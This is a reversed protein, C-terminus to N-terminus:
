PGRGRQEIPRKKPVALACRMEMERIEQEPPPRKSQFTVAVVPVSSPDKVPGTPLIVQYRDIPKEVVHFHLSTFDKGCDCPGDWAFLLPTSGLTLFEVDGLRKIVYKEGTIDRLRYGLELVADLAILPGFQNGSDLLGSVRLVSRGATPLLPRPAIQPLVAPLDRERTSSPSALDRPSVCPPSLPYPDGLVLSEAPLDADPSITSDNFCICTPSCRQDQQTLLQDIEPPQRLLEESYSLQGFPDFESPSTQDVAGENLVDLTDFRVPLHLDLNTRLNIDPTYYNSTPQQFHM